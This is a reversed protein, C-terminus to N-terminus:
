EETKYGFGRVTKIIDGPTGLKGDHICTAVYGEKELNFALLGALDKEGEIILVDRRSETKSFNTRFNMSKM